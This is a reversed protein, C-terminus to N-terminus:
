GADDVRELSLLIHDAIAPLRHGWRRDLHRWVAARHLRGVATDTFSADYAEAVADFPAPDPHQSM